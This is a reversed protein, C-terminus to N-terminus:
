LLRSILFFTLDIKFDGQLITNLETVHIERVEM